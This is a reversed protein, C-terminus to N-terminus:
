VQTQIPCARTTTKNTAHSVRQTFNDNGVTSAVVRLEQARADDDALRKRLVRSRAMPAVWPWYEKNRWREQSAHVARQDLTAFPQAVMRPKPSSRGLLCLATQQPPALQRHLASLTSEARGTASRHRGEPARDRSTWESKSLDEWGRVDVHLRRLVAAVRSLRWSEQRRRIAMCVSSCVITAGTESSCAVILFLFPFAFLCAIM